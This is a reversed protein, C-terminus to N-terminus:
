FSIKKYVDKIFVYSELNTSLKQKLDINCIGFLNTLQITIYNIM